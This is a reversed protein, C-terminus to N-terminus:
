RKAITIVGRPQERAPQSRKLTLTWQHQTQRTAAYVHPAHDAVREIPLEVHNQRTRQARGVIWVQRYARDVFAPPDVKVHSCPVQAPIITMHTMFRRALKTHHTGYAGQIPCNALPGIRGTAGHDDDVVSEPARFQQERREGRYTAQTRAPQHRREADGGFARSLMGHLDSVLDLTQVLGLAAYLRM